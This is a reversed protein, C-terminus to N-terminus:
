SEEIVTTIKNAMATIDSGSYSTRFVGDQYIHFVPISRIFEPLNGLDLDIDEIAYTILDDREASALQKFAPACAICPRCWGAGYKIVLVGPLSVLGSRKEITDIIEIM